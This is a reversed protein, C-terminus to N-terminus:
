RNKEKKPAQTNDKALRSKAKELKKQIGAIDVGEREGVGAAEYAKVSKEWSNIAEKTKEQKFYVEALHDYITSDKPVREISKKLLDEAEEYKGQRFALWGMSDLYAGNGPEMDLAKQILTRAEPLRLNRDAFMYGLYNLAGGNMPNLEIVKRFEVEALDFKKQKEYMAGRTFSIGEKEEKTASLKEAEDIAKAMEPYNKAHDYAQAISLLTERDTPKGELLTKLSAVADANRGLEGLASARVVTIMRDKPFKKLASDAEDVAKQYERNQRYTDVVQATARSALAADLEALTRFTEVAKGYQEGQRYLLGLRELLTARTQREQASYTKKQTSALLEKLATIAEASKGQSEYLNVENYRIEPNNADIEKAKNHQQWAKDFNNQQRYIQSLRLRSVFDKPDETAMEEFLKAAEDVKDALLLTSALQKKIEDNDPQLGLAKKYTEAALNYDHMQEYSGALATLTRMSPNKDTVKKLLEAAKNTDGLDAYVLALGAMADENEPDILLAKKFARESEVSNTSMKQLRGLMVWSELDLPEKETIKTYQEISNKLMTENISRSQGQPDGILRSYIRGLIRRPLINDPNAKLADEAERVAERIRGGQVYLDSIDETIFTAGPDAKLASKFHEIAKGVYEGKNGYAGALETYIRGMSYNYYAAARDEDKDPAQAFVCAGTIVIALATKGLRFM